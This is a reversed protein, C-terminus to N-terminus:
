RWPLAGLTHAAVSLLADVLDPEHAARPQDDALIGPPRAPESRGRGGGNPCAPPRALHSRVIRRVIGCLDYLTRDPSVADAGTAPGLPDPVGRGEVAAGSLWRGGSRQLGPYLWQPVARGLGPVLRYQRRPRVAAAVVAGRRRDHHRRRCRNGLAAAARFLRRAAPAAAQDSRRLWVRPRCRLRAQRALACARGGPLAPDCALEAGRAPQERDPWQDPVPVGAPGRAARRAPRNAALARLCWSAGGHWSHVLGMRGM